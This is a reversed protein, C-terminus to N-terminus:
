DKARTWDGSTLFGASIVWARRHMQLLNMRGNQRQAAWAGVPRVKRPCPMIVDACLSESSSSPLARWGVREDSCAFTTCPGKVRNTHSRPCCSPFLPAGVQRAAGVKQGLLPCERVESAIERLRGAADAESGRKKLQEETCRPKAIALAGPM